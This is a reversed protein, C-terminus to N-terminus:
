ARYKEFTAVLDVNFTKTGTETAVVKVSDTEGFVAASGATGTLTLGVVTGAVLANAATDHSTAVTDSGQTFALVYKNSGDATTAIHPVLKLSTLKWEGSQGHCIYFTSTADVLGTSVSATIIDAAM